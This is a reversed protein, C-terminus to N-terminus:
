CDRVKAGLLQLAHGSSWHHRGHLGKKKPKPNAALWFVEDQVTPPALYPRVGAWEPMNAREVYIDWTKQIFQYAGSGYPGDAKYNGGSERVMICKRYSEWRREYHYGRYGSDRLEAANKSPKAPNRYQPEDPAAAPVLLLAALAAAALM